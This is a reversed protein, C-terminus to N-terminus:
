RPPIDFASGYRDEGFGHRSSHYEMTGDDGNTFPDLVGFPEYGAGFYDSRPGYMGGGGLREYASDGYFGSYSDTAWSDFRGGEFSPEYASHYPYYDGMYSSATDESLVFQPRTTLLPRTHHTLLATSLISALSLNIDM